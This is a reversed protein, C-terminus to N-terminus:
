PPERLETVVTTDASVCVLCAGCDGGDDLDTATSTQSPNGCGNENTEAVGSANAGGSKNEKACLGSYKVGNAYGTAKKM